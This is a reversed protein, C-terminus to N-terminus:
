WRLVSAQELIGSLIGPVVGLVLTGAALVIAAARPLASGDKPEAVAVADPAVM